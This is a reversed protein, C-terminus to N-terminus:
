GRSAILYNSFGFMLFVIATAQWIAISKYRGTYFRGKTYFGMMAFTVPGITSLFLSAQSFAVWLAPLSNESDHITLARVLLGFIISLNLLVIDAAVRILIEPRFLKKLM